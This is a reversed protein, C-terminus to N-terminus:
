LKKYLTFNVGDDVSAFPKYNTKIFKCTEPAYSCFNGVNFPTYPVNNMIFYDPPNDKFDQAIKEDGFVQVNVPILYYYLNNSDRQTLFNIIAGEPVSVITSDKPTNYIIFNVLDNQSKFVKRVFVKGQPSKIPYIKNGGIKLINVAFFSIIFILCLNNITKELAITDLGKIIEPPYIVFFIVFPLFLAALSFTGYCDSTVAGLGKVSVLIASVLMFVFMKDKIEFKSLKFIKSVLFGALIILCALGIWSFIKEALPFFNHFTKFIISVVLFFNFTNILKKIKKSEIFTTSIYNLGYFILFAPVGILLLKGLYAFSVRIFLPNFYLGYANYFYDVAPTHMLKKILVFSNLLDAIGVGQLLLVGFSVIPFIMFAGLAYFYNKWDKKLFFPLCLFMFGFYPLDEIKNAFSFGAFLFSLILYKNKRDKIYLLMTFLSLLFGTLAYVASYSYTFIFNFITRIYVCASMTLGTICLATKRGVFLKASFFTTFCILLSNVFGMWYLTNLNIGFLKYAIANIQYGLPGYVNFIDKYLLKGKLMQWPVYSERGVDVLYADQKGYFIGFCILSVIFILFLEKVFYKESFEKLKEM